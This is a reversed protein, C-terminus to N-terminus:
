NSPSDILFLASISNESDTGFQIQSQIVVRHGRLHAPQLVLAGVVHQGVVHEELDGCLQWPLHLHLLM